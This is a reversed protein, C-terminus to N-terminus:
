YEPGTGKQQAANRMKFVYAIRIIDIICLLIVINERFM